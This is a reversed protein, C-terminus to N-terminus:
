YTLDFDHSRCLHNINITLMECFAKLFKLVQDCYNLTYASDKEIVSTNNLIHVSNRKMRMSEYFDKSEKTSFSIVGIKILYSNAKPYANVKNQKSDSSQFLSASCFPLRNNKSICSKQIRYAVTIILAELLSYATIIFQRADLKRHLSDQTVNLKDYQMHLDYFVLAINHKEVSEPPALIDLKYDKQIKEIASAQNKNNKPM